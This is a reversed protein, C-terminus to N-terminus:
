RGGGNEGGRSALAHAIVRQLCDPRDLFYVGDREWEARSREEEGIDEPPTVSLVYSHLFLDPDSERAKAEIERIETHLGVKSRERRGFRSLGKPDLFVVHQDAEGKLWVIFDPYYHFDDFFSVGRGGTLNRILFLERGELVPAPPRALGALRDVVKAENKDLAAPQVTVRCKENAQLLPRYAHQEYWLAWLGPVENAAVDKALDRVQEVLETEGAHASLRYERIHNPDNATLKVVELREHDWARRQSRWCVEAYESLLAVAIDELQRIRAFGKERLAEPPIRLDYWDEDELLADVTGRDIVLNHWGRRRKHDLLAAYVRDRRFFGAFDPLFVRNKEPSPSEAAERGTDTSAGASETSQLRSYLDLDVRPRLPERPGPLRPRERSKEYELDKKRRILKLDTKKAFNWTVPLPVPEFAIGEARLIQEFAEMYNARLGFIHLTELEALGAADSPPPGGSERHRKLTLNWGKLRVGRGFMQIIEPGEGVGVHMLGMTSVRWSNWGAIFRRAGVVVTVPSDPRDVEHFLRDSFGPNRELDFDPNERRSLLKYLGASDGVNVVGFPDADGVRLHLEGDGTTLYVVRLRGAAYFLTECIDRYLRAPGEGSLHPFRGAFYDGGGVPHALGSRGELLRGLMPTVVEDRALFFGLFDLIRLVDSKAEEDVRSSGRVTKGLFVWLPRSLHFPHREGTLKRYLRCQQYFTLLCGLLYMDSNADEMGRPLNSIRYDKGYGDAHFDHYGYDFLLGKAYARRLDDDRRTVQDFTASYEITFGGRALEARRQRWTKGSAGLHGEDVLVLNDDGFDSVAVRKIGKKEALKNIDLIEVPRFLDKPADPSFLRAHLGSVRLEREHQESMRENPTLLVINNLRGGARRLYRRYQLINAHMLLTKGSGTASQIALLRLDEDRYIPENGRGPRFRNLDRLLAERDGFYRDFFREAFLLALYQHPKWTRGHAAAMRLRESLTTINAHYELLDDESVRRIAAGWAGGRWLAEPVVVGPEGGLGDKEEMLRLVRLIRGLDQYGFERCLFPPLVLVERLRVPPRRRPRRM